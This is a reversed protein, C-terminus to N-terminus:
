SLVITFARDAQQPVPHASLGSRIRLYSMAQLLEPALLIARGPGMSLHTEVGEADTLDVFTTGDASAQFSANAASWDDPTLLLAPTGARVDAVSSLAAGAAITVQISTLVKPMARLRGCALGYCARGRLPQAIATDPVAGEVIACQWAKAVGLFACLINPPPALIKKGVGEPRPARELHFTESQIKEAFPFINARNPGFFVGNLRPPFEILRGRFRRKRSRDPTLHVVFERWKGRV